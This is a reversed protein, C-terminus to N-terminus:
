AGCDVIKNTEIKNGNSDIEVAKITYNTVTIQKGSENEDNFKSCFDSTENDLQAFKPTKEPSCGSLTFSLAISLTCILELKM